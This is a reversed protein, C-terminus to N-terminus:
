HHGMEPYIGYAKGYGGLGQSRPRLWRQRGEAQEGAYVMPGKCISIGGDPTFRDWINM